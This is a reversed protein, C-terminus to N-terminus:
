KLGHKKIREYAMYAVAGTQLSGLISYFLKYEQAKEYQRFLLKLQDAPRNPFSLDEFKRFGMDYKSVASFSEMFRLPIFVQPEEFKTLPSVNNLYLTKEPQVSISDPKESQPLVPLILLISLLLIYYKM